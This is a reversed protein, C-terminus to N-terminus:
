QSDASGPLIRAVARFKHYNKFTIENLHTQILLNQETPPTSDRHGPTWDSNPVAIRSFAVGRVPCIYTKGGITVPAYEVEIAAYKVTEQAGLDAIESLRSVAGTTADVAIEGHYASHEIVDRHDSTFEIRFHSAKEPVLYGFVAETGTPGNEWRLFGIKNELADRFVQILIPGFEGESTLGMPPRNLANGGQRFPVELGDRYTVTRHNSGILRLKSADTDGSSEQPMSPEAFHLTERTALFDPLRMMANRVFEVAQLLIQEQAKSEPRPRIVRDEAPPDLFASLDAQKRLAEQADKGPFAAEWRALRTRSVRETLHLHDLAGAVKGDRKGQLTALFQETQAITMSRTKEAQAPWAIWLWLLLAWERM